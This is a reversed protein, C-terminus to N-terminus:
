GEAPMKCCPDTNGDGLFVVLNEPNNAVRQRSQGDFSMYIQSAM